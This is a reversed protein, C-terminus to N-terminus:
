ANNSGEDDILYRFTDGINNHQLQNQIYSYTKKKDKLRWAYTKRMSHTGIQGKINAKLAATKFAKYVAQRSVALPKECDNPTNELILMKAKKPIYVRKSKGTKKCHITPRGQEIQKRTLELIDSIRLGTKEGIIWIANHPFKLKQYLQKREAKNLHKVKM